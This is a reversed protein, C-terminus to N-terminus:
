PLAALVGDANVVEVFLERGLHHIGQHLRPSGQLVLQGLHHVADLILVLEEGHPLGDVLESFLECLLPLPASDILNRLNIAVLFLFAVKLVESGLVHQETEHVIVTQKLLVQSQDVAV